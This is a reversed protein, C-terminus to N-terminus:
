KKKAKKRKKNNQIRCYTCNKQINNKQLLNINSLGRYIRPVRFKSPYIKKNKLYKNASSDKSCIFSCGSVIAIAVLHSDDFSKSTVKLLVQNEENDVISGDIERARNGKKLEAIYKYYSSANNLEKKYTSGGYVMCGDGDELWDLLPKFEISDVSKGFVSAFANTDIIVCM